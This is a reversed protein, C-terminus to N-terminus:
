DNAKTKKDEGKDKIIEDLWDIGTTTDNITKM